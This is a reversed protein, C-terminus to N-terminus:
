SSTQACLQRTFRTSTVLLATPDVAAKPGRARRWSQSKPCTVNAAQSLGRDTLPPNCCSGGTRSPPGTLRGHRLSGPIGPTYRARLESQTCPLLRRDSSNTCSCAAYLPSVSCLNRPRLEATATRQTARETVKHRHSQEEPNQSRTPLIRTPGSSRERGKWGERALRTSNSTRKQPRPFALAAQAASSPPERGAPRVRHQTRHQPQWSRRPRLFAGSGRVGRGPPRGGSTRPPPPRTRSALRLCLFRQRPAWDWPREGM